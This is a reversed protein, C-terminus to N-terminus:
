RFCPRTPHTPCTFGFFFYFMFVQVPANVPLSYRSPRTKSVRPPSLSDPHPAPSTGKTTFPHPGCYRPDLTGGGPSISLLIMLLLVDAHLGLDSSIGVTTEGSVMNRTEAMGRECCSQKSASEGRGEDGRVRAGFGHDVQDNTRAIKLIRCPIMDTNDRKRGQADVDNLFVTTLKDKGSTGSM